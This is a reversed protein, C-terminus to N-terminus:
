DWRLRYFAKSSAATVEAEVYNTATSSVKWTLGGVPRWPTASLSETFEVTAYQFQRPASLVLGRSNFSAQLAPCDGEHWIALGYSPVNGLKVFNGAIYLESGRSALARVHLPDFPIRFGLSDDSWDGEVVNTWTSGDWRALFGPTDRFQTAFGGGAFIKGEGLALSMVPHVCGPGVTLCSGFGPIGDGLASWQSGDWRAVNMAHVGGANTFSGGAYLYAGDVLLARVETFPYDNPMVPKHGSLGGGLPHWQGGSWRALNNVEIGNISQFMGGILISDGSALITHIRGYGFTGSAVASWAAGDWRDIAFDTSNLTRAVLVNQGVTIASLQGSLGDGVESWATGNWRAVNTATAGGASTFDGIVFLEDGHAAMQIATGDIGSGLSYWRRGDWRAVHKAAVEGAYDFTGGVYLNTGGVALCTAPATLRQSDFRPDM